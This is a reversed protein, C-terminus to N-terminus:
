WQYIVSLYNDAKNLLGEYASKAEEPALEHTRLPDVKITGDLIKELCWDRSKEPPWRPELSSQLAEHAGRILVAKKTLYKYVNIEVLGRTSSAMIVEGKQRVIELATNVLEPAGTAEVVCDISSGGLLEAVAGVIRGDCTHADLGCKRARQVRGDSIDIAVVQYGFAHFLQATLNGIMGLGLVLVRQGPKVTAARLSILSFEVMRTFLAIRPDAVPLFGHYYDRSFRDMVTWSQHPTIVLGRDGPKVSTVGSGVEVVEAYAMYGPRFPYKPFKEKPDPIGIHTGTYLALETGPSIMSYKTELLVEDAQLSSPLEFEELV